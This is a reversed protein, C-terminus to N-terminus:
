RLFFPTLGICDRYLPSRKRREPGAACYIMTLPRNVSRQRSLPTAQPKRRLRNAYHSNIHSTCIPLQWRNTSKASCFDYRLAVLLFHMAKFNGLLTEVQQEQQESVSPKWRRAMILILTSAEKSPALLSLHFVSVIQLKIIKFHLTTM